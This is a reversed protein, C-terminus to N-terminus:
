KLERLGAISSFIDYSDSSAVQLRNCLKV